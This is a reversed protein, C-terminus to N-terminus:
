KWDTLRVERVGDAENIALARQQLPWAAGAQELEQVIGALLNRDRTVAPHGTCRKASLWRRETLTRAARLHRQNQV